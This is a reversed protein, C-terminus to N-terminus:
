AVKLNQWTLRKNETTQLFLDFRQATKMQKTNYRFTSENVYLQLHKRSTKYYVGIISRKLHSWYCEIANTTTDQNAYQKRGHDVFTHKYYGQINKYAHWEDTMVHSGSKIHQKLLPQITQAKTDEIVIAKVFGTSKEVAGFVPTKKKFSRGQSNKVKKDAHRNRNKGGVFTEDCQVIGEFQRSFSEHETAHRLRQLIFYATKQTVALDRALQYSSIGRKHSTYLYIAIFWTQFSVKSGEFITRTKVTFYKGTNKCKYRNNKCSYVQSTSDFPSVVGNKWRLNELYKICSEETPFARILDLISSFKLM